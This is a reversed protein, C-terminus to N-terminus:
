ASGDGRRVLRRLVLGLAGGGVLVLGALLALSGTGSAGDGAPISARPLVGSAAGPSTGGGATPRTSGGGAGKRASKGRVRAPRAKARAIGQGFLPSPGAQSGSESGTRRASDLPIAYEKGAPSRPDLQVGPDAAQAPAAAIGICAIATGWRRM